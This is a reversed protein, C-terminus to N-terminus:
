CWTLACNTSIEGFKFASLAVSNQLASGPELRCSKALVAQGCRVRMVFAQLVFGLRQGNWVIELDHGLVVLNRTEEHFEKRDDADLRRM